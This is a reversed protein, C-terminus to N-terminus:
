IRGSNRLILLQFYASVHAMLTLKHFYFLHPPM